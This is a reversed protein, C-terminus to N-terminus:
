LEEWTRCHCEEQQFSRLWFWDEPLCLNNEMKDKSFLLNLHRAEVQFFIHRIKNNFIMQM